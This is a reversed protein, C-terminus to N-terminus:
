GFLRTPHFLRTDKSIKRIKMPSFRTYASNKTFQKPPFFTPSLLNEFLILMDACKNPMRSYYAFNAPKGAMIGMSM